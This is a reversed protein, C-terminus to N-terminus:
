VYHKAGVAMKKPPDTEMGDDIIQAWASRVTQLLSSAEQFARPDNQLNGETIRRMVYDYLNLLRDTLEGADPNLSAQLEAVIALSKSVATGKRGPDSDVFDVATTLHKIAGDFMAVVIKEPSMGDYKSQKYANKTYAM